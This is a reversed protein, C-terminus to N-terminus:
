PNSRLQPPQVQNTTGLQNIPVNHPNSSEQIPHLPLGIQPKTRPLGPQANTLPLATQPKTLPLGTEQQTTKTSTPQRQMQMVIQEAIGWQGSRAIEGAFADDMMENFFKMENSDGLLENKPITKRMEQMLMYAFYRELEQAAAKQHAKNQDTGPLINPARLGIPNVYLM